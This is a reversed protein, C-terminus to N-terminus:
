YDTLANIVGMTVDACASVVYTEQRSVALHRALPLLERASAPCYNSSLGDITIICPIAILM